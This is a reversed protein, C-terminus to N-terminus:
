LEMSPDLRLSGPIGLYIAPVEPMKYIKGTELDLIGVLAVGQLLLVYRRDLFQREVLRVGYIETSWFGPALPTVLHDGLRGRAYDTVARLTLPNAAITDFNLGTRNRFRRQVQEFQNVFQKVQERDLNTSM